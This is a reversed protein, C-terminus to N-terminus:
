NLRLKRLKLCAHVSVPSCGRYCLHAIFIILIETFLYPKHSEEKNLEQFLCCAKEEEKEKESSSKQVDNSFFSEPKFMVNIHTQTYSNQYIPLKTFKWMTRAEQWSYYLVGLVLFM